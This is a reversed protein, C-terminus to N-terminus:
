TAQNRTGFPTEPTFGPDSSVPRPAIVRGPEDEGGYSRNAALQRHLQRRRTQHRRPRSRHRPLDHHPHLRRSTTSSPHTPRWPKSPPKPKSPPSKTAPSSSAKEPTAAPATRAAPPNGAKATPTPATPTTSSRTSGPAPPRPRAPPASRRTAPSRATPTTPTTRASRQRKRHLPRLQGRRRDHLRDRGPHGAVHNATLVAQAQDIATAYATSGFAQICHYTKYLNSNTNLALEAIGQLRELPRRAGLRALRRRLDSENVYYPDGSKTPASQCANAISTAPPLVVLGVADVTPDMGLLFSDIGAQACALKTGGNCSPGQPGMSGTRDLVIMIHAPIPKGGGMEATSTASISASNIGVVKAFVTNVTASQTITVANPKSATCWAPISGNVTVCKPTFSLTVGTM